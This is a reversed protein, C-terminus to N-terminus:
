KALVRKEKIKKTSLINKLMFFTHISSCKNFILNKINKSLMNGKLRKFFTNCLILNIEKNEIILKM